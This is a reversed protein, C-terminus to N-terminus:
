MKLWQTKAPQVNMCHSWGAWIFQFPNFIIHSFLSLARLSTCINTKFQLRNSQPKSAASQSPPLPATLECQRAKLTPSTMIVAFWLVVCETLQKNWRPSNRWQWVLGRQNCLFFVWLVASSPNDQLKCSSIVVSKANYKKFSMWHCPQKQVLLINAESLSAKFAIVADISSCLLLSNGMKTNFISTCYPLGTLLIFTGWLVVARM